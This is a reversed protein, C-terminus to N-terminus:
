PSCTTGKKYDRGVSGAAVVVAVVGCILCYKMWPLMGFDIMSCVDFTVTGAEPQAASKSAPSHMAQCDAREGAYFSYPIVLLLIALFLLVLTRRSVIDIRGERRRAECDDSSLHIGHFEVSLWVPLRAVRCRLAKGVM